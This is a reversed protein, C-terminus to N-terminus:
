IELAIEKKIQTKGGVQISRLKGFFSTDIRAEILSPSPKKMYRGQEILIRSQKLGRDQYLHEALAAAAMGTASEEDIGYSPAFMRASADRGSVYTERTFPYFGVVNFQESLAKIKSLNPRMRKLAEESKVPILLFPNGFSRVHMDASRDIDRAKVGLSEIIQSEEEPSVPYGGTYYRPTPLELFIRDNNDVYINQVRRDKGGVEMDYSSFSKGRFESILSFAAITAHGCNEIQRTPTYFEAKFLAKGNEQRDLFATESVGIRKAIDQRQQPSLQPNDLVVAAANGSYDANETFANVIYAQVNM